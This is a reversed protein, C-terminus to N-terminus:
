IIGYVYIDFCLVISFDIRCHCTEEIVKMTVFIELSVLATGGRLVARNISLGLFSTADSAKPETTSIQLQEAKQCALTPLTMMVCHNIYAIEM